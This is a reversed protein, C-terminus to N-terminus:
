CNIRSIALRGTANVQIERARNVAGAACGNPRLQLQVANDPDAANQPFDKRGFRDFTVDTFAPITTITTDVLPESGRLIWVPPPDDNLGACGGGTHVCWGENFDAGTASVTIVGGRRIAESRAFNFASVLENTQSTVRNNRTFNVFSPVAIALIIAAIAITIIVEILTFGHEKKM